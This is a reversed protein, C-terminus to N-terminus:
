ALKLSLFFCDWFELYCNKYCKCFRLKSTNQGRKGQYGWFSIEQWFMMWTLKLSKRQQLKMHLILSIVNMLKEYFKFFRTKSGKPGSVGTFSIKWFGPGLFQDFYQEQNISIISSEVGVTILCRIEAVVQIPKQVQIQDISVASKPM